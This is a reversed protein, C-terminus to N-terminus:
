DFSRKLFETFLVVRQYFLRFLLFVALIKFIQLKRLLVLRIVVAFDAASEFHVVGKMALTAIQTDVLMVMM